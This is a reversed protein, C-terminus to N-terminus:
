HNPPMYSCITGCATTMLMHLMQKLTDNEVCKLDKYKYSLSM